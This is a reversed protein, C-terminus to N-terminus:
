KQYPVSDPPSSLATSLVARGGTIEVTAAVLEMTRQNENRHPTIRGGLLM